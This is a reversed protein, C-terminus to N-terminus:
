EVTVHFTPGALSFLKSTPQRALKYEQWKPLSQRKEKRGHQASLEPPLAHQASLELLLAHQASLELVKVPTCTRM